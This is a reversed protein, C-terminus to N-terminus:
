IFLAEESSVARQLKQSLLDKTSALLEAWEESVALKFELTDGSIYNMREIVSEKPKELAVAKEVVRASCHTALDIWEKFNADTIVPCIKRAKSVTLKQSRIAAALAPVKASARVVTIFDKAVHTSLELLEVCYTHLSPVEFEYYLKRAEVILLIEFLQLYSQKLNKAILMAANHIELSSKQDQHEVHQQHQDRQTDGSFLEIANM